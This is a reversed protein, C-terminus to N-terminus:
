PRRRLGRRAREAELDALLLCGGTRSLREVLQHVNNRRLLSTPLAALDITTKM